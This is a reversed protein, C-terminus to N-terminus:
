GRGHMDMRGAGFMPACVSVTECTLYRSLRIVKLPKAFAAQPAKESVTVWGM